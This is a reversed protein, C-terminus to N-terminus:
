EFSHGGQLLSQVIYEHLKLFVAVLAM